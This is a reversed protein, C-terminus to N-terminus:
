KKMELQKSAHRYAADLKKRLETIKQAPTDAALNDLGTLVVRHYGELVAQNANTAQTTREIAQADLPEVLAARQILQTKNSAEDRAILPSTKM